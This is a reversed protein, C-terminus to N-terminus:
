KAFLPARPQLRFIEIRLSPREGYQKVVAAQAVQADDRWVVEKFADGMKAINDYDPKCTPIIIGALADAQERTSWSKPIEFTALIGIGVPGQLLPRAGMAVMALKGLARMYKATNGDPLAQAFAKGGRPYIIRTMTHWGRPNGPLEVILFPAAEPVAGDDNSALAVSM